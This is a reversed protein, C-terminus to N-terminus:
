KSDEIFSINLPPQVDYLCNDISSFDITISKRPPIYQRFVCVGILINM